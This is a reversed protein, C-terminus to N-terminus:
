SFKSYSTEKAASLYLVMANHVEAILGDVSM